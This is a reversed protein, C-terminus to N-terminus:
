YDNKDFKPNGKVWSWATGLKYRWPNEKNLRDVEKRMSSFNKKNQNYWNSIYEETTNDVIALLNYFTFWM